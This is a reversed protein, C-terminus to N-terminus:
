LSSYKENIMKLQQDTKSQIATPIALQQVPQTPLIPQMPQVIDAIRKAEREIENNANCQIATTMVKLAVTIEASTENSTLYKLGLRVLDKQFENDQLLISTLGNTNYGYSTTVREIAYICANFLKSKNHVASSAELAFNCKDRLEQLSKLNKNALSIVSLESSLIELEEKFKLYYLQLILRLEFEKERDGPQGVQQAPQISPLSPSLSTDIPISPALEAPVADCEEWEDENQVIDYGVFNPAEQEDEQGAETTLGRLDPLSM